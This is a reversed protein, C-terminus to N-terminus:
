DEKIYVTYHRHTHDCDIKDFSITRCIPIIRINSKDFDIHFSEGVYIESVREKNEKNMSYIEIIADM